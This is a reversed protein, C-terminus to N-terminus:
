VTKIADTFNQPTGDDKVVGEEGNKSVGKFIKLVEPNQKERM